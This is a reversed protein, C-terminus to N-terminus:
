IAACRLDLQHHNTHFGGLAHKTASLMACAQKSVLHALSGLRTQIHGSGSGLHRASTRATWQQNVANFTSSSSSDRRMLVSVADSM